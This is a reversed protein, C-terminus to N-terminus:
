TLNGCGFRDAEASFGAKEATTSSTTTFIGCDTLKELSSSENRDYKKGINVTGLKNLEGWPLLDLYCSTLTSQNEQIALDRSINHSITQAKSLGSLFNEEQVMNNFLSIWRPIQAEKKEVNEVVKCVPAHYNEWHEVM